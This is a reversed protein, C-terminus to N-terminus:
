LKNQAWSAWFSSEKRTKEPLSALRPSLKNNEHLWWIEKLQKDGFDRNNELIIKLKFKEVSWIFDVGKNWLERNKGHAKERLSFDRLSQELVQPLWLTGSKKFPDPHPSYGRIEKAQIEGQPCEVGGM